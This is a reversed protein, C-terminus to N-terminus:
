VRAYVDHRGEEGGDEARLEVFYVAGEVELDAGAAVAVAAGALVDLGRVRLRDEHGVQVLVRRVVGLVPHVGRLQLVVEVGEILVDPALQALVALQLLENHAVVVIIMQDTVDVGAELVFFGRLFGAVLEVAAPVGGAGDVALERGDGVKALSAATQAQIRALTATATAEAVENV